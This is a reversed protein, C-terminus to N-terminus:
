ADLPIRLCFTAGTSVRAANKAQTVQSDPTGQLFLDGGFSRALEQSLSLGLGLGEETSARDGSAEASGREYADFLKPIFGKPVGPGSDSVLLEITNESVQARLRIIPEGGAEPIGYKCANDVLNVLIREINQPLASFRENQIAECETLLQFNSAECRRALLPIIDALVDTALASSGVPAPGSSGREMGANQLVNDVIHRLRGAERHLTEIYEQRQVEDTIMGEKLMETYMCFTTLPTRLEHTVASAFRSRRQALDVSRNLSTHLALLSALFVFWASSLSTTTASWKFPVSRQRGGVHVELAITALRGSDREVLSAGPAPAGDGKIRHVSPSLSIEGQGLEDEALGRLAERLSPWDYWIGQVVKQPTGPHAIRLLLLETRRVEGNMGKSAVPLLFANFPAIPNVGSPGSPEKNATLRLLSTLFKPSVFTELQAGRLKANDVREQTTHGLRLALELDVGTPVEPLHLATGTGVEFYLRQFSPGLGSPLVAPSLLPSAFRAGERDAPADDIYSNFANLALTSERTFLVRLASDLKDVIREVQAKQAWFLRSDNIMQEKEFALWTVWVLALTSLPALVSFLRLRRSDQRKLKPLLSM